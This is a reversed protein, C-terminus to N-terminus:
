YSSNRCRTVRTMSQNEERCPMSHRKGNGAVVAVILVLTSYGLLSVDVLLLAYRGTTAQWLNIHYTAMLYITCGIGIVLFFCANFLLAESKFTQMGEYSVMSGLMFGLALLCLVQSCASDYLVSCLLGSHLSVGLKWVNTKNGRMWQGLFLGIDTSTGTMHTTRLLNASYVSSM